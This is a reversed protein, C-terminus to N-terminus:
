GDIVGSDVGEECLVWVKVLVEGWTVIVGSEVYDGEAVV